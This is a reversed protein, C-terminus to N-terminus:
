ASDKGKGERMARVNQLRQEPDTFDSFFLKLM